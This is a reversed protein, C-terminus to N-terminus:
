ERHEGHAQPPLLPSLICISAKFDPRGARRESPLRTPTQGTIVWFKTGSASHYPGHPSEAERCPRRVEPRQTSDRIQDLLAEAHM